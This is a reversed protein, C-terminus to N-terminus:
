TLPNPFKIFMGLECGVANLVQYNRKDSISEKVFEPFTRIFYGQLDDIDDESFFELMKLYVRERIVKKENRPLVVAM